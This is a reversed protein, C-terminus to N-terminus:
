SSSTSAMADSKAKKQKRFYTARSMKEMFPWGSIRYKRSPKFLQTVNVKDQFIFLWLQQGVNPRYPLPGGEVVLVREEEWLKQFWGETRYKVYNRSLFDHQVQAVIILNKLYSFYTIALDNLAYPASFIYIRAGSRGCIQDARRFDAPNLSDVGTIKKDNNIYNVKSALEPFTELFRQHLTKSISCSPGSFQDIVTILTDPLYDRHDRTPTTVLAYIAEWDLLEFVCDVEANLTKHTRLKPDDPELKCLNFWKRVVTRNLSDDHLGRSYGLLAACYEEFSRFNELYNNYNLIKYNLWNESQPLRHTDEM